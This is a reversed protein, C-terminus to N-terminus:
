PAPVVLLLHGDPDRVLSRESIVSARVAGAKEARAIEAKADDSQLM